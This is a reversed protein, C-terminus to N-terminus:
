ARSRPASASNAAPAPVSAQLARGAPARLRRGGASSAPGRAASPPARPRRWERSRDSERRRGGGRACGPPPDAAARARPRRQRREERELLHVREDRLGVDRRREAQAVARHELQEVGGAHADGLEDADPDRIQMEVFVVQRADPLAALLPEDRDAVLRGGPRRAVQLVRPRRQGPASAAARRRADEQVRAAAREAADPEPLDQFPWPRRASRGRVSLGCTTRCEKAVCRSSRPASRRAM